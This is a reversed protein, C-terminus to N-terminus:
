KEPFVLFVRDVLMTDADTIRLSVLVEYEQNRLNENWYDGLEIAKGGCQLTSQRTLRVTGLSVLRYDQDATRQNSYWLNPTGDIGKLELKPSKVEWACRTVSVPDFVKEKRLSTGSLEAAIRRGALESPVPYTQPHPWDRDARCIVMRDVLYRNPHTSGKVYNPGEVKLSVYVAVNNAYAEPDGYVSDLAKQLTWSWGLFAFCNPILSCRGLCYWHYREDQPVAEPPLTCQRIVYEHTANSYIGMVVGKNDGKDRLPSLAYGGAADPDAVRPNEYRGGVLDPWAWDAVVASSNFGTLPPPNAQVAAIFLKLQNLRPTRHYKPEYKESARTLNQEYATLTDALAPRFDEPLTRRMEIRARDLSLREKQVRELLKADGAVAAEAQAFLAYAQRLFDLTMDPRAIPAYEQLPAPLTAQGARILRMYEVMAPYAAGYYAKMFRLIETEPDLEINNMLRHGLWIRVAHFTVHPANECEVFATEMGLQHYLKMNRGIVLLNETPFLDKGYYDIWYDDGLTLHAGKAFDCWDQMLKLTRRNYPAFWDQYCDRPRDTSSGAGFAISLAVNPEPRINRPPLAGKGYVDHRIIIEPYDKAIAKAVQNTFSLQVGNQTGHRKLLEQCGPCECENRNDNKTLPYYVPWESPTSGQRDMEIFKRMQTAFWEATKPNSYCIQGPGASNTSRIRKGTSAQYSFIDDMDAPADKAYDYYTHNMRPLGVMKRVGLHWAVSKDPNFKHGLVNMYHFFNQRMRVRFRELLAASPGFYSYICRTKFAPKGNLSWDGPWAVQTTKPIYSDWEDLWVVGLNREVFEYVSYIVGRPHGGALVLTNEGAAKVVWEEVDLKATDIGLDRAKATAGVYIRRPGDAPQPDNVVTPQEGTAKVLVETLEEVAAKELNTPHEPLVIVPLEALVLASCFMLTLSLIKRM